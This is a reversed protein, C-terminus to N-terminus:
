SAKKTQARDYNEVSVRLKEELEEVHAAIDGDEICASIIGSSCESEQLQKKLIKIKESAENLQKELDSPESKENSSNSLM